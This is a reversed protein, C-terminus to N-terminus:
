VKTNVNRGLSNASSAAFGAGSSAAQGAATAANVTSGAAASTSAASTSTPTGLSTIAPIGIVQGVTQLLNNFLGEIASPSDSANSATGGSSTLSDAHVGKKKGHSAPTLTPLTSAANVTLSM